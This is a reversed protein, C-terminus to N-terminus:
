RSHIHDNSSGVIEPVIKSESPPAIETSVGTADSPLPCVMVHSSLWCNTAKHSPNTPTSLKNNDPLLSVTKPDQFPLPSMFEQPLIDHVPCISESGM